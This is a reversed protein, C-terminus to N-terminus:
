RTAGHPSYAALAANTRTEDEAWEPLSPRRRHKSWWWRGIAAAAIAPVGISGVISRVEDDAGVYAGISVLVAAWCTVSVVTLATFGTYSIRSSAVFRPALTRVGGVLPGCLSVARPYRASLAQARVVVSASRSNTFKVLANPLAIPAGRRRAARFSCQCGLSTAVASTGIAWAIPVTDLGTLIGLGLVVTSGPVALGLLCGAEIVLVAAVLVLIWPVPVTAGLTEIASLLWGDFGGMSIAVWSGSEPCPRTGDILLGFNPQENADTNEGTRGRRWTFELDNHM